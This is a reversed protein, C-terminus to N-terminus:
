RPPWAALFTPQNVFRSRGGDRIRRASRFCPSGDHPRCTRALLAGTTLLPRPLRSTRSASPPHTAPRRERALDPRRGSRLRRARGARASRLRCDRRTRRAFAVGGHGAGVGRGAPGATFRCRGARAVVGASTCPPERTTARLTTEARPPRSGTGRFLLLGA